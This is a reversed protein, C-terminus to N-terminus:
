ALCRQARRRAAPCAAASTLAQEQWLWMALPAAVTSSRAWRPATLPLGWSPHQRTTPAGAPPVSAGAARWASARHVAAQQSAPHSITPGGPPPLARLPNRSASLGPQGWACRLSAPLQCSTILHRSLRSCWHDSLHPAADRHKHLGRQFARRMKTHPGGRATRMGCHKRRKCERKLVLLLPLPPGCRGPPISGLGNRSRSGPGRSHPMPAAPGETGPRRCAGLAAARARGGSAAAM